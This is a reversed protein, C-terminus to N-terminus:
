AVRVFLIVRLVSSARRIQPFAQSPAMTRCTRHTALSCRCLYTLIYLTYSCDCVDVSSSSLSLHHRFLLSVVGAISERLKASCTSIAGAIVASGQSYGGVVIKSSPCKSGAMNFIRAAEQIAERSAGGPLSNSAFDANYPVGVGQTWLSPYIHSLSTSLLPGLSVGQKQTLIPVQYVPLTSTGYKGARANRSCLYLHRKSM